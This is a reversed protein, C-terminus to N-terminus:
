RTPPLAPPEGSARRRVLLVVGVVISAAAAIEFATGYRPERYVVQPEALDPPPAVAAAAPAAGGAIRSRWSDFEKATGWVEPEYRDGIQRFLEAATQRDGAISAFYCYSNLEWANSPYRARSAIFGLRMRPYSLLRDKFLDAGETYAVSRVIFMYLIDGDGGGRMDAAEKAYSEWDGPAGHWRPLLYEAKATYLPTYDPDIAIGRAFAEEMTARPQGLGKAVIMQCLSAEADQARLPRAGALVADARTLREEFLRWADPAVSDAWGAGRAQWAYDKYLTALAVRPTPSEPYAAQWASFMRIYKAWVADDPTAFELNGYFVRLLPWGNYFGLRTGRLATAIAELKAFDGADLMAFVADRPPVTPAPDAGMGSAFALLAAM